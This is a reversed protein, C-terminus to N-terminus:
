TTVCNENTINTAQFKQSGKDASVNKIGRQNFLYVSFARHLPLGQDCRHCDYKSAQGIQRDKDDVLICTENMMMAMQPSVKGFNRTKLHLFTRAARKLFMDSIITIKIMYSLYRIVSVQMPSFIFTAVGAKLKRGTPVLSNRRYM